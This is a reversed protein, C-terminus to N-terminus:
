SAGPAAQEAYVRLVANMRGLHCPGLAKFWKVVDADLDLELESEAANSRSQSLPAIVGGAARFAAFWAENAAIQTLLEMHAREEAATRKMGDM